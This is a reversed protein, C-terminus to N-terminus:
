KRKKYMNPMGTYKRGRSDTTAPSDDFNVSSTYRTKSKPDVKVRRSKKKGGQWADPIWGEEGYIWRSARTKTKPNYTKDKQTFPSYGKMKFAM